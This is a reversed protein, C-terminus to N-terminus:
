RGAFMAALEHAVEAGGNPAAITLVKAGADHEVRFDLFACCHSEAAVLAALREAIDRDPRFRLTVRSDERMVDLLGDKGLARIEAERGPREQASLTCAIPTQDAM